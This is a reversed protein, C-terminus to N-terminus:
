KGWPDWTGQFAQGGGPRLGSQLISVLHQPKTGHYLIAWEEENEYQPDVQLGIGVVHDPISYHLGARCYPPEKGKIPYYVDRSPDLFRSIQKEFKNTEFFRTKTEQILKERRKKEQLQNDSLSLVNPWLSVDQLESQKKM